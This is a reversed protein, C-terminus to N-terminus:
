KTKGYDQCHKLIIELVNKTGQSFGKNNEMAKIYRARDHYLAEIALYLSDDTIEDQMIVSCFGEGQAYRANHVQDGRSQSPPLPIYLAPKKLASFEVVANAGSRSVALGCLALVHPYEELADLYEFQKYGPTGNLPGDINGRGCIHAVNYHRLLRPLIARIFGNVAQAGSSGGVVLIVPKKDGFGCLRRGKEIDGQFLEERLPSGTVVGKGGPIDKLAGPFTACIADAYPAVLCNALGMTMDSEHIVVPVHRMKAAIVVPVGVFGGKSFVVCPKVQKIIRRSQVVGALIRFPDSFNKLSFYRRLKGSSVTHYTVGQVPQIIDKEMGSSGIYHIDYGLKKLHPMLALNPTVHGATGGGTLIITKSM